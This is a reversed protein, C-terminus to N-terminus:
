QGILKELKHRTVKRKEEAAVRLERDPDNILREEIAAVMQEVGHGASHFVFAYSFRERYAAAARELAAIQEPPVGKTEVRSGNGLAEVWDLPDLSWWLLDASAFMEDRNDFPRQAAMRSAWRASGCCELLEARAEEPLLANLRELGDRCLKGIVRLRAVGGDPFINFRVHTVPGVRQIENGLFHRTHAQLPLRPLLEKWANDVMGELSCSEPSNGKFHTTDVEVWQVLGRAGLKIIVWDHGPGRRRRTEWGDGMNWAPGPLILHHRHGFYMDSCATVLGGNEVAALDIEQNRAVRTWDPSVTGYVRLRAVGGDPFINFRLHTFRRPADISFANEAHGQLQTKPLLQVWGAAANLDDGSPHGASTCAELSCAEPYNGKFHSTDVVVGQIIGPLGLRVICWDHGPSRRRRTEWGDMWKGRDTFEGERWVAREAKLLNEKPAFFEDSASLVAGGLREAALDILETFHM